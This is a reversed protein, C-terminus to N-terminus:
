DDIQAGIGAASFLSQDYFLSFILGAEEANPGYFGGKAQWQLPDLDVDDVLSKFQPKSDHHVLGNENFILPFILQREATTMSLSATTGDLSLTAKDQGFSQACDACFWLTELEYDLTGTPQPGELGWLFFHGPDIQNFQNTSPRNAIEAGINHYLHTLASYSAEEHPLLIERTAIDPQKSLFGYLEDEPDIITLAGSNVDIAYSSAIAGDFSIFRGFIFEIQPDDTSPSVILPSNSSSTGGGGCNAFLFISLCCLYICKKM